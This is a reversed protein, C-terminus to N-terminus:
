LSIHAGNILAVVVNGLFPIIVLAVILLGILTTNDNDRIINKLTTM